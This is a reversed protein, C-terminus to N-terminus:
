IIQNSTPGCIGMHCMDIKWQNYYLQIIIFFIFSWAKEGIVHCMPPRLEDM